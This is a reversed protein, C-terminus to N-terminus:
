ILNSSLVNPMFFGSNYTDDIGTVTYEPYEGGWHRDEFSRLANDVSNSILASQIIDGEKYSWCGSTIRLTIIFVRKQRKDM